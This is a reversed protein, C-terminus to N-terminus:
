LGRFFKRWDVQWWACVVNEVSPIVNIQVNMKLSRMLFVDKRIDPSHIHCCIIYRQKAVVNIHQSSGKNRHSHEELRFNEGPVAPSKCAGLWLLFHLCTSHIYCMMNSFRYYAMPSRTERPWQMFLRGESYPSCTCIGSGFWDVHDASWVINCMDYLAKVRQLRLEDLYCKLVWDTGRLFCRV